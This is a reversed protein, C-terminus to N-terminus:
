VTRVLQLFLELGKKKRADLKFDINETLYKKLIEGRITGTDGFKRVVKDINSVGLELTENFEDTFDKDLQRNSAWCAFVFPLGTFNIWEAALDIKFRFSM